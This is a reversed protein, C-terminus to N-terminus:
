EHQPIVYSGITRKWVYQLSYIKAASARACICVCLFPAHSVWNSSAKWSTRFVLVTRLTPLFIAVTYGREWVDFIVALSRGAEPGASKWSTHLVRPNLRKSLWPSTIVRIKLDAVCSPCLAMFRSHWDYKAPYSLGLFPPDRCEKIATKTELKGSCLNDKVNQSLSLSLSLSLSFRSICM